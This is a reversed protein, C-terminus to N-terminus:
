NNDKLPALEFETALVEDGYKFNAISNPSQVSTIRNKVDRTLTATAVRLGGGPRLTYFQIKDAGGSLYDAILLFQNINSRHGADWRTKCFDLM